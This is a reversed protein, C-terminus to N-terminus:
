KLTKRGSFIVVGIISDNEDMCIIQNPWNTNLSKLYRHEAEIILQKFLIEKTAQLRAIVYSGHGFQEKPDVFILDGDM